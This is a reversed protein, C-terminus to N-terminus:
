WQTRLSRVPTITETSDSASRPISRNSAMQERDGYRRVAKRVTAGPSVTVLPGSAAKSVPVEAFPRESLYGAKLADTETLIGAPNADRTVVVSGVRERLMRGVAPAAVVDATV